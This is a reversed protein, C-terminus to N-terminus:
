QVWTCHTLLICTFTFSIYLFISYVEHCVTINSQFGPNSSQIPVLSKTSIQPMIKISKWYVSTYIHSNKTWMKSIKHKRKGFLAPGYGSLRPYAGWKPGGTTWRSLGQSRWQFLACFLNITQFYVSFCCFTCNFAYEGIEYKPREWFNSDNAGISNTAKRWSTCRRLSNPLFRKRIFNFCKPMFERTQSLLLM